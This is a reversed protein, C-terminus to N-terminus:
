AGEPDSIMQRLQQTLDGQGLVISTKTGSLVQQLLEWEKMRRLVPNEAMLRATNAQSRAAATEERRRILNAEAQKQAEIVQNLITKMDGPLIIDRLGTSRIEVGYESARKELAVRVEDAVVNKDALLDELARGGVAARLALQAERYLANSVDESVSVSKLPDVVRYGLVLNVRLTVKDATMIEQGSVDLVRERMDVGRFTVQGTGHWYAFTGPGFVEVLGGNRYILVKEQEDSRIVQLHKSAAPNAIIRDLQEHQFRFERIDFVQIELPTRQKWFAHLGAGVLYAIRGRHFILARQYDALELVELHERLAENEVLVELLDHRFEVQLRDYVEDVRGPSKMHSGPQLVTQLEGHRFRLGLEHSRIRTKFNM